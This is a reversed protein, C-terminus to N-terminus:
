FAVFNGQGALSFSTGHNFMVRVGMQGFANLAQGRSFCGQEPNTLQFNALRIPGSCHNNFVIGSQARCELAWGTAAKATLLVQTQGAPAAALTAKILVDGQSNTSFFPTMTGVTTAPSIAPLVSSIGPADTIVLTPPSIAGANIRAAYVARRGPLSLNVGYIVFADAVGTLDEAVHLSYFGTITAGPIDPAPNGQKQVLIHAGSNKAWLSNSLPIVTWTPGPGTMNTMQWAVTPNAGDCNAMLSPHFLGFHPLTAVGSPDRRRVVVSQVGAIDHRLHQAKAAPLMSDVSFSVLSGSASISPSAPRPPEAQFVGAGPVAAMGTWTMQGLPHPTCPPTFPATPSWHLTGSQSVGGAMRRAWGGYRLNFSDLVATNLDAFPMAAGSLALPQHCCNDVMYAKGPATTNLTAMTTGPGNVQLARVSLSGANGYLTNPFATSVQDGEQVINWARLVAPGGQSVPGGNGWIGEDNNVGIVLGSTLAGPQLKAKYAFIMPKDQALVPPEFSAFKGLMGM